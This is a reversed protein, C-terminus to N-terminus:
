FGKTRRMGLNFGLHLAHTGANYRVMNSLNAEFTYALHIASVRIGLHLALAKYSRISLAIWHVQQIYSRLHIDYELRELDLIRANLRIELKPRALSSFLYGGHIVVDPSIVTAPRLKDKFPIIHHVALGAFLGASYYYAGVNANYLTYSERTYSLIPDNPNFPTFITEDLIRQEASGSLGLSLRAQDLVLHYAYAMQIGRQIAPGNRDGFMSLGLGIRERSRINSTNILKMPDYFDFNGIRVSASALMSHPSHPIGAWQKQYTLSALPYFESGTIAPNLIAPHTFNHRYIVDDQALIRWPLLLILVAFQILSPYRNM